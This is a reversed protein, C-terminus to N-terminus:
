NSRDPELDALVRRWTEFAHRRSFQAEIMARARKGMAAVKEADISLDLIVRALPGPSGPEITMGCDYQKVLRAIEGDKATVAIIPRGAAAIGYVKSPVVLGELRSRLSIWHVDPVSLSYKLTEEPQYPLFRFQHKLGREQARRALEDFYHGGGVFLFLIRPDGQLREAAGLLTEFEHAQGLNGSYGVVFKDQLDWQARLPNGAPPVPVIAEDDSWNPVVHIRDTSVGRAAVKEAMREGVVVNASAAKLSADRLRALVKGAAGNVIPVSLEIAIEPYIDQLWNVLRAGRRRAADMAVVSLLPPDTMAIFTDGRDAMALLWRWTAVYFSLYDMGRGLLASRGFGTTSIRHVHVGRVVEQPALDANPNGYLQRSTVIHVPRGTEALHFALQSLIQSTASHDPFFYRNIFLLRRM